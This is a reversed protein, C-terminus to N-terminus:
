AVNSLCSPILKQQLCRLYFFAEQTQDDLHDFAGFINEAEKDGIKDKFTQKILSRALEKYQNYAVYAEVQFPLGLQEMLLTTNYNPELKPFLIPKYLNKQRLYIDESSRSSEDQEKFANRVDRPYDLEKDFEKFLKARLNEQDDLVQIIRLSSINEFREQNSIGPLFISAQAQNSLGVPFIWDQRQSLYQQQENFDLRRFDTILRDPRAKGHDKSHEALFEQALSNSRRAFSQLASIADQDNEERAKMILLEVARMESLSQPSYKDAENQKSDTQQQKTQLSNNKGGNEQRQGSSRGENKQISETTNSNERPPDQAGRVTRFYNQYTRSLSIESALRYFNRRDRLDANMIAPLFEKIAPSDIKPARRDAAVNAILQRGLAGAGAIVILVLISIVLVRRNRSVSKSIPNGFSYILMASSLTLLTLVPLLLPLGTEGDSSSSFFPGGPSVILVFLTTIALFGIVLETQKLLWAGFVAGVVVLTIISVILITSIERSPTRGSVVLSDTLLLSFFASCLLVFSLELINRTSILNDEGQEQTPSVDGQRGLEHKPQEKLGKMLLLIQTVVGLLLGVIQLFQQTVSFGEAMIM